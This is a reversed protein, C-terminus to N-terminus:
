HGHNFGIMFLRSEGQETECEVIVDVYGCCGNRWRTEYEATEVGSSVQAVRFNDCHEKDESLIDFYRSLDTKVQSDYWPRLCNQWPRHPEPFKLELQTTM